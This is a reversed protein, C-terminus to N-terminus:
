CHSNAKVVNPMITYVYKLYDQCTKQGFEQWIQYLRGSIVWSTASSPSIRSTTMQWTRTQKKCQLHRLDMNKTKTNQKKQLSGYLGCKRFVIENFFIFHLICGNQYLYVVTTQVHQFCVLLKPATPVGVSDEPWRLDWGHSSMSAVPPCPVLTLRYYINTFTLKRRRRKSSIYIYFRMKNEWMRYPWRAYM